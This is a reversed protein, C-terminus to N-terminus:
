LTRLREDDEDGVVSILFPLLREEDRERVRDAEGEACSRRGCDPYIRVVSRGSSARNFVSREVRVAEDAVVVRVKEVAQRVGVAEGEPLPLKFLAHLAGGGLPRATSLHLADVDRRGEEQRDLKLLRAVEDVTKM